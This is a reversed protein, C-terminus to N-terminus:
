GLIDKYEEKKILMYVYDKAYEWNRKSSYDYPHKMYIECAFYACDMAEDLETKEETVLRTYEKLENDNLFLPFLIRKYWPLCKKFSIYELYTAMDTEEIRKRDKGSDRM